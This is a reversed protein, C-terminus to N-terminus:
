RYDQFEFVDDHIEIAGLGLEGSLLLESPENTCTDTRRIDFGGSREDFNAVYGAGIDLDTEVCMGKPVLVEAHGMGIDLRLRTQGPPFDIDRLDLRIEGAGIEYVPQLDAVTQPRYSRDGWGGSTDLDAAAVVGAPAAMALALGALWIMRRGLLAAVIVVVGAAVVVGAVIELGGAASAALSVAALSIAAIVLVALLALRTFVGLATEGRVISRGTRADPVVLWALGYALLGGGALIVTAVVMGIRFVIPDVDFHRALGGCVGAIVRDDSRELRRPLPATPETKEFRPPEQPPSTM